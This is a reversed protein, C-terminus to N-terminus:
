HCTRISFGQTHRYCLRLHGETNIGINSCLSARIYTDTVDNRTDDQLLIQTDFPAMCEICGNVSATTVCLVSMNVTYCDASNCNDIHKTTIGTSNDPVRSCICRLTWVM